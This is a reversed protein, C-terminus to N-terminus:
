LLKEMHLIHMYYVPMQQMKCLATYINAMMKNCHNSNWTKPHNKELIQVKNTNSNTERQRVFMYLRELHKAKQGHFIVGVEASCPLPLSGM